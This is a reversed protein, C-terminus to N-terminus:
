NPKPKPIIQCAECLHGLELITNVGTKHLIRARHVEMTRYSIGLVRAIEKNSQGGVILPLVELERSTLTNLRNRLAEQALTQEHIETEQELVTKIREILLKSPVPKTLFDVAGAKITRVTLPINGYGTLFIIPLHINRRNLENQLEDGTMGPMNVDLLLCSPPGACYSELFQEASAFAQFNFGAMEIILGLGDRVANDDDVIYVCPQMNM